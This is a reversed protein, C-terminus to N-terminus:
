LLSAFTPNLGNKTKSGAQRTMAVFFSTWSISSKNPGAKLVNQFCGKRLRHLREIILPSNQFRGLHALRTARVCHTLDLMLFLISVTISLLPLLKELWEARTWMQFDCTFVLDQIIDAIRRHNLSCKKFSQRKMTWMGISCQILCYSHCENIYGSCSSRWLSFIRINQSDVHYDFILVTTSIDPGEGKLSEKRHQIWSIKM